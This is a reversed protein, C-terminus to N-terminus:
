ERLIDLYKQSFEPEVSNIFMLWGNIRAYVRKMEFEVMEEIASDNKYEEKSVKLQHFVHGKYGYRKIYYIEQRLEKKKRKSIRPYSKDFVTLGTVYQNQGRKMLKYKQENLTFGFRLLISEVEEQIDLEVNSSFFLDDAYRTYDINEGLDDLLQDLEKFVINAVTPSTHFGQVLTGNHCTIKSILDSAEESFQLQKLSKIVQESKISEFYNKIDFQYVFKKGLHPFANTAINRGKVFGHV